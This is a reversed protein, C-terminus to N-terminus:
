MTNKGNKPSFFNRINNEKRKSSQARGIDKMLAARLEEPLEKLVEPDIEDITPLVVAQTSGSLTSTQRNKSPERKVGKERDATASEFSRKTGSSSKSTSNSLWKDMISPKPKRSQLSLRSGLPHVGDNTSRAFAAEITSSGSAQDIFQTASVSLCTITISDSQVHSKSADILQMALKTATESYEGVNRPARCQKSSSTGEQSVGVSVVITSATRRNEQYDEELREKLENCLEGIWKTLTEKDNSSIANVGRFTKSGGISKPKLRPTVEDRCIGRSIDSLFRATKEELKSQLTSLPIQSLEGVTTIQFEHSIKAGFQGGLGRIRSLPLPYFLKELPSSDWANILTQRNPKKLGSALKALTKNNSIGASLTFVGGDFGDLVARRARSAIMAGFALRMEIEDWETTRNWWTLSGPDISVSSDVVQLKSGKRLDTKDLSNTAQAADSLTEIGGVTTCQRSEKICSQWIDNKKKTQDMFSDVLSTVDVYVEDISAIEVPIEVTDESSCQNYIAQSLVNMVRKSASRYLTLDAKGHKVPVVVINLEPCKRTAEVGRDNRRVGAARAEYSVAILSGNVDQHNSQHNNPSQVLREHIDSPARQELSGYPNYQSVGVPAKRLGPNLERECAVYFADLDFHLIIRNDIDNNPNSLSMTKHAISSIISFSSLLAHDRPSSTNHFGKERM